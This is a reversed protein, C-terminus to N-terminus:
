NEATECTSDITVQYPNTSSGDGSSYKVCAKLSLVPRIAGVSNGIRSTDITSTPYTQASSLYMLLDWSNSHRGPSMTSLWSNGIISSGTANLKISAKSLDKNYLAGAYKLEDITILAVPYTLQGNGGGTTSASFKDEVAQTTEFLGGVGNSGCKFSPLLKKFVTRSYPAFNFLYTDGSSYQISYTGSSVSRDNCYIATKSVYKDYNEAIGNSYWNDIYTKITSSNENTRNSALSGSTGYMYGVYMPNEGKGKITNYVTDFDTAIYGETTNPDTGSYMLRVSGDENIRIIRWYIDDNVNWFYECNKNFSSANVCNDYSDYKKSGTDGHGIVIVSSYKGFKVWNKEHNGSFYYVDEGIGDGDMDETMQNDSTSSQVYITGTTTETNVVTFDTRSAVNPNDQLIQYALTGTKIIADEGLQIVCTVNKNINTITLKNGELVGNECNITADELTYGEKPTITFVVTGNKLVEKKVSDSSGNRVVVSAMYTTPDTDSEKCTGTVAKALIRGKFTRSTSDGSLIDTQDETESYSLWLYLTYSNSTNTNNINQNRIILIQSGDTRENFSGTYTDTGNTLEYKFYKNRLNEGLSTVDIYLDYCASTVGASGISITFEKKVAQTSKNKDYIPTLNSAVLSNDTINLSFNSGMISIKSGPSKIRIKFYAYTSTTIIVILILIGVLLTLKTNKKIDKEM